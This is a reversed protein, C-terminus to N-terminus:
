GGPGHHSPLPTTFIAAIRWGSGTKVLVGEWRVPATSPYRGPDGATILLPTILVAVGPAPTAIRLEQMQPDLKWTGQWEQAFAALAEPSGSVATGEAQVWVFDRSELLVAAVAARDHANQGA